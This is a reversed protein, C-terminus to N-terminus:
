RSGSILPQALAQRAPLAQARHLKLVTWERYVLVIMVADLCALALLALSGQTVFEAFQYVVFGALVAMAAPYAWLIRRALMLVMAFKLTGHALLYIAYFHQVHVPFIDALHHFWQIMADTPHQTLQHHTLWGWLTLVMGHPTLLLGLGLLTEGAAFAGKILLSAEFLCHLVRSLRTIPSVLLM